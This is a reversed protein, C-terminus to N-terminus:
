PEGVTTPVFQGDTVEGVLGCADCSLAPRVTLLGQHFSATHSEPNVPWVATCPGGEPLLCRHELQVLEHRDPLDDDGSPVEVIIAHVGHGLDVGARETGEPPYDDM